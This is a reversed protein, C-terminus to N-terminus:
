ADSVVIGKVVKHPQFNNQAAHLLFQTEIQSEILADELRKHKDVDEIFGFWNQNKGPAAFRPEGRSRLWRWDGDVTHVRYQIDLSSKTRLALRVANMTPQQDVPHISGLWGLNRTWDDGFGSMHVAPPNVVLNSGNADMTWSAHPHTELMFRHDEAIAHLAKEARKRPSIDVIAVSIGIVSNTEDRAPLYSVLSTRTGEDNDLGVRAVEVNIVAEGKLARLLYPEIAPYLKPVVEKVTKGNHDAVPIGTMEALQRNVTVHRLNSDLFALGVPAGDYIAQLQGHTDLSSVARGDDQKSSADSITRGPAAVLSVISEAPAPRGYLWGQGRDCDLSQLISAQQETEVGEAVTTLGLTHGLAVIAAVIKRSDRVTTMNEVFSRDIKVDDFPLAQLHALSSYGTGFDDIALRCGMDKLAMAVKQVPPLDGFLASETIEITLRNLPFGAEEAADRIQSPLSAYRMQIPSINIALSLPAPLTSICRFAKRLVQHTLSGILGTEEAISIFNPPLVLGRTPSQWRALVEFGSLRGTRLEVVPQFAPVVEDRELARIVDATDIPM